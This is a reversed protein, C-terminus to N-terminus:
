CMDGEDPIAMLTIIEGAAATDKEATVTGNTIDTGVNVTYKEPVEQEQTNEAMATVPTQTLMMCM